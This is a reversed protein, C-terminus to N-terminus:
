ITLGLDEIRLGLEGAEDGIETEIVGELDGIM